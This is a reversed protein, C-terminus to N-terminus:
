AAAKPPSAAARRSGEIAEFEAHTMGWLAEDHYRGDYYITERRTGEHAFGLGAHLRMSAENTSICASNCKHYRAERFAYRLLLRIADAAYGRGRCEGRVVVGFSFVGNKLDRSHWSLGGVPVGDHTEITFLVTGEPERCEAVRSIQERMGEITVPLEAGLQLLQRTPTDLRDIWAQEADDERVPRLRVVDGQWIYRSYDM